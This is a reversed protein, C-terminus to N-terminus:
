LAHNFEALNCTHMHVACNVSVFFIIIIVLLVDLIMRVLIYKKVFISMPVRVSMCSSEDLVM